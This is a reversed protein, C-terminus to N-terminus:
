SVEVKFAFSFILAINKERLITIRKSEQTAGNTRVSRARANRFLSELSWCRFGIVSSFYTCAPFIANSGNYFFTERDGSYQLTTKLDQTYVTQPPPGIGM